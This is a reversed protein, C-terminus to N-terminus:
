EDTRITLWVTLGNLLREDDTHKQQKFPKGNTDTKGKVTVYKPTHGIYITCHTIEQSVIKFIRMHSGYLHLDLCFQM